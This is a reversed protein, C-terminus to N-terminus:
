QKPYIQDLIAIDHVRRIVVASAYGSREVLIKEDSDVAFKAAVEFRIRKGMYREPVLCADRMSNCRSLMHGWDTLTSASSVVNREILTLANVGFVAVFIRNLAQFVQELAAAELHFMGPCIGMAPERYAEAHYYLVHM